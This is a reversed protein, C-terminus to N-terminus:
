AQWCKPKTIMILSLRCFAESSLSNQKLIQELELVRTRAEDREQRLNMIELYLMEHENGDLKRGCAPTEEPPCHLTMQDPMDQFWNDGKFEPSDGPTPTDIMPLSETLEKPTSAEFHFRKWVPCLPEGFAAITFTYCSIDCCGSIWDKDM